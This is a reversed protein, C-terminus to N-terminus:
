IQTKLGSGFGVLQTMRPLHNPGESNRCNRVQLLPCSIPPSPIVHFFVSFASAVPVRFCVLGGRWPPEQTGRARRDMGGAQESVAVGAGAPGGLSVPM